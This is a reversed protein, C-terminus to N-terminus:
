PVNVIPWAFRCMAAAPMGMRRSPSAQSVTLPRATTGTYVGSCCDGFPRTLPFGVQFCVNAHAASERETSRKAPGLRDVAQRAMSGKLASPLDLLLRLSIM